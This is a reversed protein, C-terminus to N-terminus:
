RRSGNWDKAMGYFWTVVVVATISGGIAPQTENMEALKIIGLTGLTTGLIWKYM